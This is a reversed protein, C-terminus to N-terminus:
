KQQGKALHLANAIAVDTHQSEIANKLVFM